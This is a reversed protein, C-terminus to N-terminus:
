KGPQAMGRRSWKPIGQSDRLTLTEGGKKVERAIIADGGAFKVKSGTVEIEDGKAFEFGQQKLFAAPGLHVDLTEEGSKLTLHTASWGRRGTFSKVEEVTGKVTVESKPDYNRMGRRGGMMQPYALPTAVAIALAMGLIIRTVMFLKRMAEGKM